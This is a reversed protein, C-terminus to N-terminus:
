LVPKDPNAPSGDAKRSNKLSGVMEDEDDDGPKSVFVAAAGLGSNSKATQRM